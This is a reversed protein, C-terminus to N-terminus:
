TLIRLRFKAVLYRYSDGSLQDSRLGEGGDAACRLWPGVTWLPLATHSPRNSFTSGSLLTELDGRPKLILPLFLTDNRETPASGQFCEGKWCTFYEEVNLALHTTRTKRRTTTARDRPFLNWSFLRTPAAASPWCLPCLPSCCMSPSLRGDKTQRPETRSPLVPTCLHESIVGSLRPTFCCALLFLDDPPLSVNVVAFISICNCCRPFIGM